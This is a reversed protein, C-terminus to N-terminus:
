YELIYMSTVFYNKAYGLKSEFLRPSRSLYLGVLSKSPTHARLILFSLKELSDIFCTKQIVVIEGKSKESVNNKM